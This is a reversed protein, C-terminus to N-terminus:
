GSCQLLSLLSNTLAFRSLYNIAFNSEVGEETLQYRGRVLGASHVLYHLSSYRSRVENAVRHAERVLSLDAPFFNVNRNRSCERLDLEARKGKALDRGVILVQVGLHALRAAIEKGIGDTGGTVLAHKTSKSASTMAPFGVVRDTTRRGAAANAGRCEVFDRSPAVLGGALASHARHFTAPYARRAAPSHCHCRRSLVFCSAIGSFSHWSASFAPRQAGGSDWHVHTKRRFLGSCENAFCSASRARTEFNCKGRARPRGPYDAHHGCHPASQRENNTVRRKQRNHIRRQGSRPSFTLLTAMRIASSCPAIAGRNIRPSWLLIALLARSAPANATSMKSRSSLSPPAIRLRCPRGRGTCNWLASAASPWHEAAPACRRTITTASPRSERSRSTFGRWRPSM